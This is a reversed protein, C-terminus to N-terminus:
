WIKLEPRMWRQMGNLALMFVGKVPGHIALMHRRYLTTYVFRAPWGHVNVGGKMFTFMNGVTHFKSMNVFGGLNHYVYPKLEAKDDKRLKMLHDGILLAMQRATQGRPPTFSGDPQPCEACDGFSFIRPDDISQCNQHVKIQNAKNTQLDLTSLVEPAKVGAAWIMLDAQIFKGCKTKMGEATVETVMTGTHIEIGLDRLQTDVAKQLSDQELGPMVRDAAEILNVKLLDPSIEYGYGRLIDAAHHMEAAMEVGTAGSGVIAIEFHDHDPNKAYQLFRTLIKQRLDMAQTTLDLFNCHEKVGPIGFDNTVAGIGLVLYDYDIQREPLVEIGDKDTMPALIVKRNIRDIGSLAGQEFRYGTNAGHVRYDVANIGEDLSGTALEHLLAKWIHHDCVDVLTIEAKGKKGLKRGIKGLLEMGGAGGGVVVIKTM